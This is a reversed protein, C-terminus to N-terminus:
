GLIMSLLGIFPYGFARDAAIIANRLGAPAGDSYGWALFVFAAPIAFATWILTRRLRARSEEVEGPRVYKPPNPLM